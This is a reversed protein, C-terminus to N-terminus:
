GNNIAEAAKEILKLNSIIAPTNNADLPTSDDATPIALRIIEPMAPYKGPPWKVAALGTKWAANLQGYTSFKGASLAEGIASTHGALKAADAKADPGVLAAKVKTALSKAPNDPPAPGSGQVQFWVVAGNPIDAEVWSAFAVYLGPQDTAFWIRKGDPLIETDVPSDALKWAVKEAAIILRLDGKSGVSFVFPSSREGTGTASAPATIKSAPPDDAVAVCLSTLCIAALIIPFRIM